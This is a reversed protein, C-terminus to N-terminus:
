ADSVGQDETSSASEFFEILIPGIQKRSPVVDRQNFFQLSLGPDGELLSIDKIEKLDLLDHYYGSRHLFADVDKLPFGNRGCLALQRKLRGDDEFAFMIGLFDADIEDMYELVGMAVDDKHFFDQLPMLVTSVGFTQHGDPSYEKYDYRLADRVSLSRWFSSDYKAGQLMEFVAEPDPESSLGMGLAVQTKEPLDGWDTNELLNAVADRDRQTVKGVEPSLNVSDLLIVGLLLLGISSSYPPNWVTSQREAVLTCASAVLAKDDAFAITRATGSCTDLYLGEDEHHDVIEVVTWNKWQFQEALANHDVLTVRAVLCDEVILPDDVFHLDNTANSIGALELLLKVEPRQTALDAKPISVIPTSQMAEQTSEIYALTIASVISDADGAENGIVIHNTPQLMRGKLFENLSPIAPKVAELPSTCHSRVIWGHDNCHVLM